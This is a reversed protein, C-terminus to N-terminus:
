LVPHSKSVDAPIPHRWSWDYACGEWDVAAVDDKGIVSIEQLMVECKPINNDDKGIVSIEQLIVECKPINNADQITTGSRMFM